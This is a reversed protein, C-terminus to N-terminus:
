CPGRSGGPVKLTVPTSALTTPSSANSSPRSPPARVRHSPRGGPAPERAVLEDPALAPDALRGRRRGDREGGTGGAAAGEQHRGIGRVREAIGEATPHTRPDRPDRRVARREVGELQVGVPGQGAPKTDAPARKVQDRLSAGIEVAPIDVTEESQAEGTDILQTPEQLQRPHGLVAAVLGHDDIRRGGAVREPEQGDRFGQSPNPGHEPLHQRLM